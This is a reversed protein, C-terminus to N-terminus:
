RQLMGFSYRDSLDMNRDLIPIDQKNIIHFYTVMIDFYKLHKNETLTVVVEYGHKREYKALLTVIKPDHFTTAADEVVELNYNILVNHCSENLLNKIELYDAAIIIEFKENMGVNFYRIYWSSKETKKHDIKHYEIWQIIKDLVQAKVTPVPTVEDSDEDEHDIMTQITVMQKVTAADVTFIVGDSSQLKFSM